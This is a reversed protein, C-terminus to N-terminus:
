SERPLTRMDPLNSGYFQEIMMQLLAMREDPTMARNEALEAREAEEFSHYVRVYRKM